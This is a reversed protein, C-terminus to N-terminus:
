TEPVVIESPAGVAAKAVEAANVASKNASREVALQARDDFFAGFSPSTPGLLASAQRLWRSFLVSGEVPEIWQNLQNLDRTLAGQLTGENWGPLSAQIDPPFWSLLVARQGALGGTVAKAQIEQMENFNFLGM